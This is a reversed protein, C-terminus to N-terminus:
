HRLIHVSMYAVGIKIFPLAGVKYKHIYLQKLKSYFHLLLKYLALKSRNSQNRHSSKITLGRRSIIGVIAAM